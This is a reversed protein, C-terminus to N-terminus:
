PSRGTSRLNHIWIGIGSKSRYGDFLYNECDCKQISLTTVKAITLKVCGVLSERELPPPPHLFVM